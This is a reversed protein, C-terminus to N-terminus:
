KSLIDFLRKWQCDMLLIVQILFYNLIFKEKKKKKVNKFEREYELSKDEKYIKGKGEKKGNVFEGEYYIENNKYYIVGEGYEKLDILHGIYYM